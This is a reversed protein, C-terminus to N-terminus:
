RPRASKRRARKLRAGLKAVVEAASVYGGSRKARREAALGRAIFEAQARREDISKRVSELVCSSLPEGEEIVREAAERLKPDVRLAGISRTKM